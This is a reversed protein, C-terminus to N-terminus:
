RTCENSGFMEINVLSSRTIVTIKRKSLCNPCPIMAMTLRLVKALHNSRLRPMTLPILPMKTAKLKEPAGSKM